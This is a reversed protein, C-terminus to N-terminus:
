IAPGPRHTARASPTAHSNPAGAGLPAMSDGVRVPKVPLQDLRIPLSSLSPASAALLGIALGRSEPHSEMGHHDCALQRQCGIAHDKPPEGNTDAAAMEVRPVKV